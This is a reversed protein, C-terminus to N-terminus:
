VFLGCTEMIILDVKLSLLYLWFCTLQARLRGTLVVVGLSFSNETVKRSDLHGEDLNSSHQGPVVDFLM